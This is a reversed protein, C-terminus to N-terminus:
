KRSHLAQEILIREQLNQRDILGIHSGGEVVVAATEGKETLEMLLDFLKVDPSVTLFNRKMFASIQVRTGSEALGKVIENVTLLGIPEGNDLVVFTTDQGNLLADSAEGLTSHPSFATFQRMLADCVTLSGLAMKTQEMATEGSAGLFIFIGIFVLWFNFFFGLFVFAIALLQGILAAIRTANLRGVFMSLIARLARGGDMPFAPILNFIPLM